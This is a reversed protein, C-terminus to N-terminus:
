PRLEMQAYSVNEQGRVVLYHVRKDGRTERVCTYVLNTAWDFVQRKECIVGPFEAFIVNKADKELGEPLVTARATLGHNISLIGM